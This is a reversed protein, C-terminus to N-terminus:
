VRRVRNINNKGINIAGDNNPNEKNVRLKIKNSKNSKAVIKQKNQGSKNTYIVRNGEPYDSLFKTKWQGNNAVAGPSVIVNSTNSRPGSPVVVPKIGNIETLGSSLSNLTTTFKLKQEITSNNIAKINNPENKLIIKPNPSLFVEASLKALKQTIAKMDNKNLRETAATLCLRLATIIEDKIDKFNGALKLKYATTSTIFKTRGTTMQENLEGLKNNLGQIQAYLDIYFQSPENGTTMRRFYNTTKNNPGNNYFTNRNEAFISKLQDFYSNLLKNEEEMTVFFTSIKNTNVNFMNGTNKMKSMEATFDALVTEFSTQKASIIKKYYNFFLTLIADKLGYGVEKWKADLIPIAKELNLEPSGNGDSDFWQSEWLTSYSDVIIQKTKEIESLLASGVSNAKATMAELIKGKLYQDRKANAGNKQWKLTNNIQTTGNELPNILITEGTLKNLQATALDLTAALSANKNELSTRANTYDDHYLLYQKYFEKITERSAIASNLSANNNLKIIAESNTKAKTFKEMNNKYSQIAGEIEIKEEDMKIVLANVEEVITAYETAYQAAVNSYATKIKALKGGARHNNLKYTLSM